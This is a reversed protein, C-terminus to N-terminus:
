GKTYLKQLFLKTTLYLAILFATNRLILLIVTYWVKDILKGYTLPFILFTLIITSIYFISLRQLGRQGKAPSITIFLPVFTVVWILYQPSFVNNFIIFFSIVLVASLVVIESLKEYSMEKVKKYNFFLLSYVLSCSLVIFPQAVKAISKALPTNIELSGNQFAITNKLLGVKELGLLVGAYLSELQVDRKGQYSLFKEFNTYGKIVFFLSILAPISFFLLIYFIHKYRKKSLEIILFVPLVVAPYLKISFGLGLLLSAIFLFKKQEHKLYFIYALVSLSTLIGPFIDYRAFTIAALLIISLYTILLYPIIKKKTFRLKQLSVYYIALYIGIFAGILAIYWKAFTVPNLARSILAPSAVFFTSLPPYEIFFNIFPLKGQAINHYISYYLAAEQSPAFVGIPADSTIVFFLTYIILSALICLFWKNSKSYILVKNMIKVIM